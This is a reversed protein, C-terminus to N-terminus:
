DSAHIQPVPDVGFNRPDAVSTPLIVPKQPPNFGHFQALLLVRLLFILHIQRSSCDLGLEGSEYINRPIPDV